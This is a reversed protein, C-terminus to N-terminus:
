RDAVAGDEHLAPEVAEVRPPYREALGPKLAVGIGPRDPVVLYGDELRLNEVLLDNKPPRDDGLYDQLVFNPICADLQVGIATAVSSLAGHPIIGAGFAEALGAIKKAASLGGALCPDLRLYRAGNCVLLERFEWLDHLREGTALPLRIARAIEGHSQISFPPIADEYYLPRFRELEGALTIAEPASLRRHIEVGIDIGSGVTERVAAVRAVADALLADYRRAAFDPPFPTIRIATIGRAVEARARVALDDVTAAQIQTQVRVRDRVKGGLLQHVPVELRQGALDWLAADVAGLAGAVAGGRFHTHRYLAQWHHEIRLPDQGVLYSEWSALVADCADPYAWLGAEGLGTLGVDTHIRVFLWRDVRLREVREIRM